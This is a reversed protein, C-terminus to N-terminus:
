LGDPSGFRVLMGGDRDLVVEGAEAVTKLRAAPFDKRELSGIAV